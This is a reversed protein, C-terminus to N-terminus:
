SKSFFFFQTADTKNFMTTTELQDSPANPTTSCKASHFPACLQGTNDLTLIGVGDSNHHSALLLGSEKRRGRSCIVQLSIHLDVLIDRMPILKRLNVVTKVGHM